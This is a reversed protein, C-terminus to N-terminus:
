QHVLARHITLYRRELEKEVLKIFDDSLELKIAKYYTEILRENSLSQLLNVESIQHIFCIIQRQKM